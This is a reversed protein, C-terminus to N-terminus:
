WTEEETCGPYTTSEFIVYDGKKIVNGVTESAMILPRLDPVNHHDVPTPVCVIFFNAKRLENIDYTFEIDCSGFSEKSLENSPDIGKKMQAIRHPNIYFGM